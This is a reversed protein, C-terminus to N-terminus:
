IRNIQGNSLAELETRNFIGVKVNFTVASVSFTWLRVTGSSKQQCRLTNGDVILTRNDYSGKRREYINCSKKYTNFYNFHELQPSSVELKTSTSGELSSSMGPPRPM